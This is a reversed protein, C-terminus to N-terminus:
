SQSFSRVRKPSPGRGSHANGFSFVPSDNPLELGWGKDQNKYTGPGPNTFGRAKLYDFNRPQSGFRSGEMRSIPKRFKGKSDTVKPIASHPRSLRDVYGPTLPKNLDTNNAEM